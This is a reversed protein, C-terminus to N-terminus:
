DVAPQGLIEVITDLGRDLVDDEIVLPPGLILVNGYRGGRGVEGDGSYCRV